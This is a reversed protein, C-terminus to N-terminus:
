LYQLLQNLQLAMNTVYANNAMRGLIYEKFIPSHNVARAPDEFQLKLEVTSLNLVNLNAILILQDIIDDYEIIGIKDLMTNVEVYNCNNFINYLDELTLQKAVILKLFNIIYYPNLLENKVMNYYFFFWTAVYYVNLQEEKNIHENVPLKWRRNFAILSKAFVEDSVKYKQQFNKILDRVSNILIM